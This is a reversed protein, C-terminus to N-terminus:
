QGSGAAGTIAGLKGPPIDVAAGQLNHERAGQIRIAREELLRPPPAPADGAVRPGELAARLARGTPTDLRAVDAPRGEGVVRGGEAGAEPGLDIVWDAARAVDMHHEVVVVSHGSAVLRHLARVLLAVDAAHLGTTPEDLLYLHRESEGAGALYSALKLRQAEGGSLTPAPQSLTLYGLGIELLPTLAKVVGPVDGYLRAVEAAPLDLADAISVGRCRVELVEPRFRRGDCAACR